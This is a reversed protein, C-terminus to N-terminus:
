PWKIFKTTIQYITGWKLVNNWYFDPLGPRRDGEMSFFGGGNRVIKLSGAPIEKKFVHGTVLFSTKKKRRAHANSFSVQPDLRPPTGRPLPLPCRWPQAPPPRRSRRSGTANEAGKSRGDRDCARALV